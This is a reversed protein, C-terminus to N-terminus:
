PPRRPRHPSVPKLVKAIKDWDQRAAHRFSNRLLHVVCTQVTTKPWVTEVADPLGALGDRVLMLVDNVGRNKIETLIRMRSSPAKTAPGCDPSTGAPGPTRRRHRTTTRPPFRQQGTVPEAGSRNGSMHPTGLKALLAVPRPEAASREGHDGPLKWHFCKREVLPREAPRDRGPLDGTARDYGPKQHVKRSIWALHECARRHGERQTGSGPGELDRGHDDVGGQLPEGLGAQDTEACLVVRISRLHCDGEQVGVGCAGRIVAGCGPDGRM